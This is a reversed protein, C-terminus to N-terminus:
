RTSIRITPGERDSRSVAHRLLPENVRQDRAPFPIVTSAKSTSRRSDAKSRHREQWFKSLVYLLFVFAAGNLAFFITM